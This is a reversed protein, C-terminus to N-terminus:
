PRPPFIGNLVVCYRMTLFPSLIGVPQGGGAPDTVITGPAMAVSPAVGTTYVPTGTPFDALVAGTPDDTSSQQTTAM